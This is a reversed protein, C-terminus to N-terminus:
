KLKWGQRRALGHLNSWPTAISRQATGVLPHFLTCPSSQPSAPQRLFPVESDSNTFDLATALNGIQVSADRATLPKLGWRWEILKLISTHDFLISNVNPNSPNTNRTWPSAIITPVRFGLLVEGSVIDPDIANPAVARPPAVHDFFGGWEDFTVIFVTSSWVPSSAVAKFTAALFADGRLINSHPQEDNGTDNDLITFRPDVFSVAPLRGSAVDELFQDYTRSTFLYKLGWLAVFPVNSYYYRARVRASFLRDFITPLTTFNLSEDLRDTQAAFMFIRNPFTSALISCFYNDLTLYNRALASMFPLDVENYYGISYEDNNADLLWGNMSADNYEIRGGQYSHDPNPHGCGQYDSWHLTRQTGLNRTPYSFDQRANANPLWGLLHDFSRNEMTVIVVHEIGSAKPLPLSEGPFAEISGFARRSTFLSLSSIAAVRRMFDRRDITM